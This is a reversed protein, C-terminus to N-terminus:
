WRCADGRPAPWPPLRHQRWAASVALGPTADRQSALPLDGCAWRGAGAGAVGYLRLVADAGVVALQESGTGLVGAALWACGFVPGTVQQRWVAPAASRVVCSTHAAALRRTDLLAVEGGKSLSALLHPSGPSFACSSAM